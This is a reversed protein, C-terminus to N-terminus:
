RGKMERLKEYVGKAIFNGEDTMMFPVVEGKADPNKEKFKEQEKDWNQLAINLTEMVTSIDGKRLLQLLKEDFIFPADEKIVLWHDSLVAECISCGTGVIIVQVKDPM